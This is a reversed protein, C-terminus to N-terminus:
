KPVFFFPQPLPLSATKIERTTWSIAGVIVVAAVLLGICLGVFVDVSLKNM